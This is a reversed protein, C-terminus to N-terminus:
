GNWKAFVVVRLNGGKTLEVVGVEKWKKFQGKVVFKVLRKDM